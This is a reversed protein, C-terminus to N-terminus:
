QCPNTPCSSSMPAETRLWVWVGIGGVVGLGGIIVAEFAFILRAPGISPDFNARVGLFVAAVAGVALALGLGMSGAILVFLAWDSVRQRIFGYGAATFFASASGIALMLGQIKM